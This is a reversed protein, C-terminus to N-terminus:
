AKLEPNAYNWSIAASTTKFGSGLRDLNNESQWFPIISITQHRIKDPNSSNLGAELRVIFLFYIVRKM